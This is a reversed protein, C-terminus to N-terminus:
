MDTSHNDVALTIKYKESTYFMNIHYLFTFRNKPLFRGAKDIMKAILKSVIAGRKRMKCQKSYPLYPIVAIVKRCAATRCAYGLM